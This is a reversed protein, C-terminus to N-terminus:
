NNDNYHVRCVTKGQSLVIRSVVLVVSSGDSDM